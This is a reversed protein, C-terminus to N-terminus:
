LCIDSHLHQGEANGKIGKSELLFYMISDTLKHIMLSLCVASIPPVCGGM